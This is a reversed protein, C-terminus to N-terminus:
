QDSDNTKAEQVPETSQAVTKPTPIFYGSQLLYERQAEDTPTVPEMGPQVFGFGVMAGVHTAVYTLTDVPAAPAAGLPTQEGHTSRKKM